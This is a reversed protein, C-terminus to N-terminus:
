LIYVRVEPDHGAMNEEDHKVLCQQITFVSWVM